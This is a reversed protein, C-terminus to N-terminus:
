FCLKGPNMINNPDFVSKIKKLLVAAQADKNFVMDAWMHYPRSFYAAQNLLVKSTEIYTEKVVSSEKSNQPDFPLSFECHCCVGQHMPQIYVGIDSALYGHAKATAQVSSVFEPTKDMTTLFFIDRCDGKSRLKWYPKRSPKIAKQLIESSECNGISKLLELGHERAMERIDNLQYEVRERPLVSRGAIAVFLVWPPLDGGEGMLRKLNVSNLLFIEDGFRYRLIKYGFDLLDEIKNAPIILLEHLEPLVECKISAWTVIGMSGQAASVLKYFDTQAPGAAMVQAFKKQWERELQGPRSVEGTTFVNGDGWVVELCRLPDLMAWQYRPILRPERELLSAVVSKNAKPHLTSSLRLGNESLVPQLQEYTVGPEILVMKNRRDVKIIKKMRGLDVIVADASTPVTDGNFRPPASSVPILPTKTANAWKVIEQIELTNEPKVLLSPKNPMAFSHDEAFQELIPKADIVMSPGLIKALGKKKNEM